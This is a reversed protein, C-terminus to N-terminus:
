SPSKVAVRRKIGILATAIVIPMMAANTASARIFKIPNNV